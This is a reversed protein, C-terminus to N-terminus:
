NGQTFPTSFSEGDSGIPTPTVMAENNADVMDVQDLSFSSLAAGDIQIGSYGEDGYDTLDEGQPTGGNPDETIVEASNRQCTSACSASYETQQGNIVFTFLFENNTFSTTVTIHDGSNVSALPSSPAPLMEDWIWYAAQGLQDCSEAFGNQEVTPSDYGDVGVWFSAADGAPGIITLACDASPVTASATVSTFTQGRAVYGSWDTSYTVNGGTASHPARILRSTGILRMSQPLKMQAPAQFPAGQAAGAFVSLGVVVVLFVGRM